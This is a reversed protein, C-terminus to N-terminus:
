NINGEKPGLDFKIGGRIKVMRKHTGVHREGPLGHSEILPGHLRIDHCIDQQAHHMYLLYDFAVASLVVFLLLIVVLLM